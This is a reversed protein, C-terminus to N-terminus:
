ICIFVNRFLQNIEKVLTVVTPNLDHVHNGDPTSINQYKNRIYIVLHCALTQWTIPM